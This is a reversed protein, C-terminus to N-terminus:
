SLLIAVCSREGASMYQQLPGLSCVPSQIAGRQELTLLRGRCSVVLVNHMHLPLQVRCQQQWLAAAIGVGWHM